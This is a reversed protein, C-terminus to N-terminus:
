SRDGTTPQGSDYDVIEDDTVSRSHQVISRGISNSWEEKEKDSDAVFYMTERPTSLEFAFKRNLV